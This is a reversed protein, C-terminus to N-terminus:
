HLTLLDIVRQPMVVLENGLDGLADLPVLRPDRLLLRLHLLANASFIEPASKGLSLMLIQLDFQDTGWSAQSFIM